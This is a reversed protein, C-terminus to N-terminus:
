ACGEIELRGAGIVAMVICGAEQWVIQSNDPGFLNVINGSAVSGTNQELSVAGPGCWSRFKLAALLTEAITARRGNTNSRVITTPSSRPKTRYGLDGPEHRPSPEGM